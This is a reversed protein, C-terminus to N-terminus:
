KSVKAKRPKPMAAGMTQFDSGDLMRLKVGASM